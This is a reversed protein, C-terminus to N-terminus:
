ARFPRLVDADHTARHQFYALLGLGQFPTIIIIHQYKVILEM